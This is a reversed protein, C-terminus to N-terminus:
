KGGLTFIQDDDNLFEFLSAHLYESKNKATLICNNLPAFGMAQVDRM